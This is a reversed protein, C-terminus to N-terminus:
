RNEHKKKKVGIVNALYISSVQAHSQEYLIMSFGGHCALNTLADACSNAENYSHCIKVEL